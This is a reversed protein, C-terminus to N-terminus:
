SVKLITLCVKRSFGYTDIDAPETARQTFKTLAGEKDVVRVSRILIEYIACVKRTALLRRGCGMVLFNVFYFTSLSGM